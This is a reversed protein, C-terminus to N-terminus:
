HNTTEYTIGRDPSTWRARSRQRFFMVQPLAILTTFMGIMWFAIPYWVADTFYRYIRYDYRYDIVCGVLLQMLCTLFLLTGHWRPVIDFQWGPPLTVFLGILALVILAFMSYAWIVSLMF